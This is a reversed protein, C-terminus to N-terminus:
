NFVAQYVFGDSEQGIPVLFIAETGLDANRLTYIKQELLITLPGKFRIQFPARTRGPYEYAKLATAQFLTMQLVSGDDLILDFVKGLLPEFSGLTLKDLM